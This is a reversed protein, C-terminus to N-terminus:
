PLTQVPLRSRLEYHRSNGLSRFSGAVNPDTPQRQLDISSRDVAAPQSVRLLAASERLEFSGVNGADPCWLSRM